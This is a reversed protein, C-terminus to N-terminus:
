LLSRILRLGNELIKGWAGATRRHNDDDQDLLAFFASTDIFLNM